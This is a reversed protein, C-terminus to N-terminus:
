PIVYYAKNSFITKNSKSAFIVSLEYHPHYEKLALIKIIDFFGGDNAAHKIFGYEGQLNTPQWLAISSKRIFRLMYTKEITDVINM